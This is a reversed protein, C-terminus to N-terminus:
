TKAKNSQPIKRKGGHQRRRAKNLKIQRLFKAVAMFDMEELTMLICDYSTVTFATTFNTSPFYKSKSSSVLHSSRVFSCFTDVQERVEKFQIVEEHFNGPQKKIRENFFEVFHDYLAIDIAAWSSFLQMVESSYNRKKIRSLSEDESTFVNRKVYLIDKTSWGLFRRLLVMSEEFQEAILILDFTSQVDGLFQQILSQNVKALEFNNLPFGLDMSMRNNLFDKAPNVKNVYSESDILFSEVPNEPFKKILKSLPPKKFVGAYYVFTSLFQEFPKRLIGIYVTDNPFFRSIETSNFILHNCLIDHTHGLPLPYLNSETILSGGENIHEGSRDLMVNLDHSIAFRLFVNQVTTSAAKHVKSFVVHHKENVENGNNIVSVSDAPPSVASFDSSGADNQSILARTIIQELEQPSLNNSTSSRGVPENNTRNNFHTKHKAILSRPRSPNQRPM